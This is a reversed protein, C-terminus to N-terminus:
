TNEGGQHASVCEPCRRGHRGCLGSVVSYCIAAGYSRRQTDRGRAQPGENRQTKSGDGAVAGAVVFPLGM